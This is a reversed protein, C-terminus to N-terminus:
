NGETTRTIIKEKNNSDIKINKKRQHIDRNKSTKVPPPFSFCGGFKAANSLFIREL